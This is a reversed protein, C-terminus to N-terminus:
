KIGLEELSRMVVEIKYGTVDVIEEPTFSNKHQRLVERAEPTLQESYYLRDLYGVIIEEHRFSGSHAFQYRVDQRQTDCDLAVNGRCKGCRGSGIDPRRGEDGTDYDRRDGCSLCVLECHERRM